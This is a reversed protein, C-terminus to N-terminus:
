EIRPFLPAAKRVTDGEVQALIAEATRPLFSRLAVATQRIVDVLLRLFFRLEQERGEKALNWPKTEEVHRNTLNVLEWILELAASFNFDAQPQLCAAIREELARMCSRIPEGAAYDGPDPVKGACYKEVMTLTRYVLNGLDNALDANYRKVIAEESFHGDAGFPIDRLLFYRFTDIGHREATELPDVANGRSKSMKANQVLWWGHACITDPPRIGLAKLMIPWYVAHHRVIDKGIFHVVHTEGDWWPSQYRGDASFSGVASIYNILADFWVYTVHAGSFPLPV